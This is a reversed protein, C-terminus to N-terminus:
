SDSRGQRILEVIRDPSLPTETIHVDFPRLADEVASAIAAPAPVTGSEGVGKVGLPNLPSPTDRHTIEINPLEPATPVLYEALNGTLPQGSDDYIMREFLANGIGHVAGGLVQGDVLTPNIMRGCDHVIVYNLIEVAGTEGDVEVEAVHTGNAFTLDNAIFQESGELGPSDDEPVAYGSRGLTASSLDGLDIALDPVGRVRVQRGVIELDEESAELERAAAKLVKDRVTCAALHVSSGANVTIRSASTGFGIPITATDGMVVSVNSVDGGLQEACVQALMTATGQGIAVAGTYVSIRGSTGIRVIAAEYPGRGTGKVYTAIGIGRYRGGEGPVGRRSEFTEYGAAALAAQQSAPYDGSDYVM